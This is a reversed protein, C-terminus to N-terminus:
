GSLPLLMGSPRVSQKSPVGGVHNLLLAQLSLAIQDQPFSPITNTWCGFLM